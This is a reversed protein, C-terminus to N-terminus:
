SFIVGRHVHCNSYIININAHSRVCPLRKPETDVAPQGSIKWIQRYAAPLSLVDALHAFEVVFEAGEEKFKASIAM